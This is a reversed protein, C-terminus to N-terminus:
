EGTRLLFAPTMIEVAHEFTVGEHCAMWLQVQEKEYDDMRNYIQQASLDNNM